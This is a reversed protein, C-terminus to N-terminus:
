EHDTKGPTPLPRAARRRFASRAIINRTRLGKQFNQTAADRAQGHEFPRRRGPLLGAPTVYFIEICHTKPEWGSAAGTM